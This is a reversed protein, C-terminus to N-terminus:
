QQHFCLRCWYLKNWFYKAHVGCRLSWFAFSFFVHQEQAM